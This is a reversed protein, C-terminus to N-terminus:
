ANKSSRLRKQLCSKTEMLFNMYWNTLCNTNLFSINSLNTSICMVCIGLHLVIDDVYSTIAGLKPV